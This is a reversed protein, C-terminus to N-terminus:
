EEPRIERVPRVPNWIHYLGFSQVPLTVPLTLAARLIRYQEAIRAKDRTVSVTIHLNEPPRMGFTGSLVRALAPFGQGPSVALYLWDGRLQVSEAILTCPPLQLDRCRPLFVADQEKAWHILTAHYPLIRDAAARDCDKRFPIKNAPLERLASTLRAHLTGDFQAILTHGM